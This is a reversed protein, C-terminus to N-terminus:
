SRRPRSTRRPVDSSLRRRRCRRALTVRSRPNSRSKSSCFPFNRFRRFLALVHVRKENFPSYVFCIVPPNMSISSRATKRSQLRMDSKQTLANYIRLRIVIRLFLFFSESNNYNAVSRARELVDAVRLSFSFGRKKLRKESTCVCMRLLFRGEGCVSSRPDVCPFRALSSSHLVASQPM